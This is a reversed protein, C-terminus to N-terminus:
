DTSGSARGVLSRLAVAIRDYRFRFGAEFAAQPMVHQGPVLADAAEGLVLRLALLPVPLV